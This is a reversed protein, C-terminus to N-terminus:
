GKGTLIKAPKLRLVAGAQILVAALALALVAAFYAGVAAGDVQAKPQPPVVINPMVDSVLDSLAQPGLKDISYGSQEARAYSVMNNQGQVDAANQEYVDSTLSEALPVGAAVGVALGLVMAIIIPVAMEVAAQLAIKLKSEGMACLMGFERHKNKLLLTNVLVLVLTSAVLFALTMGGALQNMKETPGMTMDYWEENLQLYFFPNDWIEQSFDDFDMEAYEEPVPQFSPHALASTWIEHISFKKKTREIFGPIDEESQLYATVYDVYSGNERGGEPHLLAQLAAPAFLMEEERSQYGRLKNSEKAKFIGVVTIKVPPGNEEASGMPDIYRVSFESGLHLQNHQAFEQSILCVDPSDEPTFHKGEILNYGYVNFAKDKESYTPLYMYADFNWPKWPAEDQGKEYLPEVDVFDIFTYEGSNYAM